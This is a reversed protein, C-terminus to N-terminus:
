ISRTGTATELLLLDTNEVSAAQVLETIKKNAM